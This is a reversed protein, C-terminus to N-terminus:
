NENEGEDTRHWICACYIALAILGIFTAVGALFSILKM